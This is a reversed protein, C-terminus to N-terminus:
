KENDNKNEKKIDIYKYKNRYKENKEIWYLRDEEHKKILEICKEILEKNKEPEKELEVMIKKFKNIMLKNM